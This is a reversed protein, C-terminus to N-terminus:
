EKESRRPHRPGRNSRHGRKTDQRPQGDRDQRFSKRRNKPQYKKPAPLLVLDNISVQRLHQQLSQQIHPHQAFPTKGKLEARAEKYTAHHMFSAPQDRHRHQLYQGIWHLAIDRQELCRERERFHRPFRIELWLYLDLSNFQGCLFDFRFINQPLEPTVTIDLPVAYDEGYVQLWKLFQKEEEETRGLPAHLFYYRSVCACCPSSFLRLVTLVVCCWHFSVRTAAITKSIESPCRCPTWCNRLASCTM